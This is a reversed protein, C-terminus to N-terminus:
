YLQEEPDTHENETDYDSDRSTNRRKRNRRYQVIGPVIKNKLDLAFSVIGYIWFFFLVFLGGYYVIPVIESM